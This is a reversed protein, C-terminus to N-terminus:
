RKSCFWIDELVLTVRVQDALSRAERRQKEIAHLQRARANSPEVIMECKPPSCILLLSDKAGTMTIKAATLSVVINSGRHLSGELEQEDSCIEL